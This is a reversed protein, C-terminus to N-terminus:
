RLVEYRPVYIQSAGGVRGFNPAVLGEIVETGKPVVWKTTKYPGSKPLALENLPDQVLTRTVWHGKDHTVGERSYRYVVTDELLTLKGSGPAFAKIVDRRDARSVNNAKMLDVVERLRGFHQRNPYAWSTAQVLAAKSADADREVSLTKGTLARMEQSFKERYEIPSFIARKAYRYGAGSGAIIGVGSLARDMISLPTSTIFDTGAILEYLDAVDNLLPTFGIGLRAMEGYLAKELDSILAVHSSGVPNIGIRQIDEREPALYYDELRLIEPEDSPNYLLLNQRAFGQSLSTSYIETGPIQTPSDRDALPTKSSLGEVSKRFDAYQYYKGRVLDVASVAYEVGPIGLLADSVASKLKDKIESPLKVQAGPDARLLIKRYRQPYDEWRTQNRLNWLLEQLDRQSVENSRRLELLKRYFVIGPESKQWHYVEQKEPSAKHSDLCYTEVPIAIRSRSPVFVTTSTLLKLQIYDDLVEDHLRWDDEDFNGKALARKFQILRKGIADVDPPKVASIYRSTGRELEGRDASKNTSISVTACAGAAIM